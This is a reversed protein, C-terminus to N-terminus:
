DEGEQLRVRFSCTEEHRSRNDIRAIHDCGPNRCTLRERPGSPCETKFHRNRISSSSFIKRCGRCRARRGPLPSLSSQLSESTDSARNNPSPARSAPSSGGISTQTESRLSPVNTHHTGIASSSLEGDLLPPLQLGPSYNPDHFTQNETTGYGRPVDPQLVSPMTTPLNNAAVGGSLSGNIIAGMTPRNLGLYRLLFICSSELFQATDRM